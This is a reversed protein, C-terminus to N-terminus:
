GCAVRGIQIEGIRGLEARMLLGLHRGTSSLVILTCLRSKKKEKKRLKIEISCLVYMKFFVKRIVSKFYLIVCVGKIGGGGM